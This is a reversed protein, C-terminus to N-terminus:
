EYNVVLASVDNDLMMKAVETANADARCTVVGRHMADRITRYMTRNGMDPLPVTMMLCCFLGVFGLVPAQLGIGQSAV